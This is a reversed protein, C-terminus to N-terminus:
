EGGKIIQIFDPLRLPQNEDFLSNYSGKTIKLPVEYNDRYVNREGWLTRINFKGFSGGVVNYFIRPSNYLNVKSLFLISEENIKFSPSGLVLTTIGDIEGGYYTLLISNGPKFSGNICETVEVIIDTYTHEGEKKYSLISKTKVIVIDQSSKKLFDLTIEDTQGNTYIVYCFLIFLIPKIM